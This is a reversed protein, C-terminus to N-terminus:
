LDTFPLHCTHSLAVPRLESNVTQKHVLESMTQRLKRSRRNALYATQKAQLFHRTDRHLRPHRSYYKSYSKYSVRCKGCLLLTRRKDCSSVGSTFPEVGGLNGPEKRQSLSGPYSALPGCGYGQDWAREEFSLLSLSLSLRTVNAFATSKRRTMHYNFSM